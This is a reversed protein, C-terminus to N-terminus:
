YCSQAAKSMLSMSKALRSARAGKARSGRKDCIQQELPPIWYKHSLFIVYIIDGKAKQQDPFTELM